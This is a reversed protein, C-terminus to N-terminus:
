SGVEISAKLIAAIQTIAATSYPMTWPWTVAGDADFVERSKMRREKM